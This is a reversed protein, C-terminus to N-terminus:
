VRPKAYHVALMTLDDSQERHGVFSHVEQLINEILPRPTIDSQALTRMMREEGFQELTANEAEVLGDTYLFLTQGPKLTIYQINYQWNPMIGVPVNADMEITTPEGGLVVPACHGANSYEMKGNHLDLVGIFLTVFLMNENMESMASNIQSM